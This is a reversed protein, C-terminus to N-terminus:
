VVIMSLCNNLAYRIAERVQVHTADDILMYGGKAWYPVTMMIDTLIYDYRHDRDLLIMDFLGGAQKTGEILVDPTNKSEIYTFSEGLYGRTEDSLKFEPDICVGKFENQAM